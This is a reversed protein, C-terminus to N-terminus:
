ARRRKWSRYALVGFGITAGLARLVIVALAEIASPGSATASGPEPQPDTSPAAGTPSSAEPVGSASLRPGRVVDQAAVVVVELDGVDQQSDWGIVNVIEDPLLRLSDLSGPAVMRVSVEGTADVLSFGDSSPSQVRGAIGVRSGVLAPLGDVTTDVPEAAAGAGLPVARNGADSTAAAQPDGSADLWPADTSDPNWPPPTEDTSGAPDEGAGPSDSPKPAAGLQIDAASRPAIAFRQDSATPYARKVIGTITASPGALLRATSPIRSAALGAIPLSGGAGLSAEARWTDGTKSVNEIRVTVRALRWEDSADPARRLVTPAAAGGRIREPPDEAAM